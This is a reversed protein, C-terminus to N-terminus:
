IYGLIIIIMYLIIFIVGLDDPFGGLEKNSRSSVLFTKFCIFSVFSVLLEGNHASIIQGRVLNGILISKSGGM